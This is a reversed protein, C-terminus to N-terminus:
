GCLATVGASAAEADRLRNAQAPDDQGVGAQAYMSVDQLGSAFARATDALEAPTAPDLHDLLYTAGASMALRSGAAVAAVSTAEPGLDTHTQIAVAARVTQHAACARARADAIQQDSYRPSDDRGASMLAWIAVGVAVVAIALAVPAIWRAQVSVTVPQRSM